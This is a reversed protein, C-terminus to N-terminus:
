LTDHTLEAARVQSELKSLYQSFAAKQAAEYSSRASFFHQQSEDPPARPSLESREVRIRKGDKLFSFAHAEVASRLKSLRQPSGSKSRELADIKRLLANAKQQKKELIRAVKDLGSDSHVPESLVSKEPQPTLIEDCNKSPISSKFYNEIVDIDSHKEERPAESPTTATKQKQDAEEQEVDRINLTDLKQQMSQLVGKCELSRRLEECYRARKARNERLLAGSEQRLDEQSKRIHELDVHLEALREKRKRAEQDAIQQELERRAQAQLERQKRMQMEKPSECIKPFFSQTAMFRNYETQEQRKEVSERQSREAIQKDLYTRIEGAAKRQGAVREREAAQERETEERLREQIRTEEEKSAQIQAVLRDYAERAVQSCAPPYSSGTSAIISEPSIGSAAAIEIAPAPLPPHPEM